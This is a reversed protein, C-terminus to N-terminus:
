QAEVELEVKRGIRDVYGGITAEASVLRTYLKGPILARPDPGTLEHIERLVAHAEILVTLPVANSV